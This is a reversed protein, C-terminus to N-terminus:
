PAPCRTSLPGLRNTSLTTAACPTPLRGIHGFTVPTYPGHKAIERGRGAARPVATGYDNANLISRIQHDHLINMNDVEDLLVTQGGGESLIRYLAASTPNIYRETANHAVHRILKLVTSKCGPTPGLLALRPTVDFQDYVFTHFIWAAITFLQDATAGIFKGLYVELVDLPNLETPEPPELPEEVWKDDMDTKSLVEDLDDWTCGRKKLTKRL